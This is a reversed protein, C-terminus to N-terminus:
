KIPIEDNPLVGAIEMPVLLHEYIEVTGLTCHYDKFLIPLISQIMSSNLINYRCGHLSYAFNNQSLPKLWPVPGVLWWLGSFTGWFTIRFKPSQAVRPAPDLTFQLVTHIMMYM